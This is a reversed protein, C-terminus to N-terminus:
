EGGDPEIELEGQFETLSISKWKALDRATTLGLSLEDGYSEDGMYGPVDDFAEDLAEDATRYRELEDLIKPVEHIDSAEM